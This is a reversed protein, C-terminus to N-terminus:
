TLEPNNHFLVPTMVTPQHELELWTIELQSQFTNVVSLPHEVGQDRDKLKLPRLTILMAIALLHGTHQGMTSDLSMRNYISVQRIWVQDGLDILSDHLVLDTAMFPPNSMQNEYALYIERALIDLHLGVTGRNM